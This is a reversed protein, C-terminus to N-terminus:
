LITRDYRTEGNRRTRTKDLTWILIINGTTGEVHLVMKDTAKGIKSRTGNQRLSDLLMENQETAVLLMGNQGIADLLM